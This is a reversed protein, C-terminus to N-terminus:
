HMAGRPMTRKKKEASKRLKKKGKKRERGGERKRKREKRGEKKKRMRKKKKPRVRPMHFNGPWLSFRCWLLSELQQLSLALDKGSRSHWM